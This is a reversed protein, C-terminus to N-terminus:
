PLEKLQDTTPSGFLIKPEVGAEDAINKFVGALQLLADRADGTSWFIYGGENGTAGLVSNKGIPAHQLQALYSQAVEAPMSPFTATFEHKPSSGAVFNKFAERSKSDMGEYIGYLLPGVYVRSTGLKMQSEEM